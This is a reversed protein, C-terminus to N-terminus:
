KSLRRVNARVRKRYRKIVSDKLAGLLLRSTEETAALLKEGTMLQMEAGATAGGGALRAMRLLIVQQSELALM